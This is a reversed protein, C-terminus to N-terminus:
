NLDNQKRQGPSDILCFPRALNKKRCAFKGYKPKESRSVPERGKLKEHLQSLQTNAEDL